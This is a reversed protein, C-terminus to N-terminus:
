QASSRLLATYNVNILDSSLFEFDSADNVEIRASHCEFEVLKIDYCYSRATSDEIQYENLKISGELIQFEM